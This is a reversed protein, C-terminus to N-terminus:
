HLSDSLKNLIRNLDRDSKRGERIKDISHLVTTHHKGGFARGIEPLSAGVLDRCLFMALQRPFVIKKSNNRAKLDVVRLRFEDAVVQQIAEITVKREQAALTTKLVQQATGVTLEAGTLSCYALLRTLSGELERINGHMKSAVFLAVDDPLPSALLEAKRSLIAVWTELDPPLLDAMLG